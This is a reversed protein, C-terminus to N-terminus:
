TFAISIEDDGSDETLDFQHNLTRINERADLALSSYRCKPATITCINGAASGVTATLAALTGARWDGFFDETAVLVHEPDITGVPGRDAVAASLHGSAANVSPRLVVANNMAIDLKSIIGAYSSITFTASVFPPPVTANYTASLLAGDTVSFDAGTFVFHIKGPNGAELMITMDGRCGWLKYIMGDEYMALTLSPDSWDSLPTYTVSTEAVVAEYFGCAQILDGCEPATGKTGSGKLDVDFELMASRRGSLSAVRSLTTRNVNRSLMPINPTFKANFALVADAAALTEATGEEGEIEQAIQFKQILM